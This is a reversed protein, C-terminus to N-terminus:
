REKEGAIWFGVRRRADYVAGHFALSWRQRRTLKRPTPPAYGPYGADAMEEATVPIFTRLKKVEM